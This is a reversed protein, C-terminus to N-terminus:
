KPTLYSQPMGIYWLHVGGGGGVQLSGESLSASTVAHKRFIHMIWSGCEWGEGEGFGCFVQLGHIYGAKRYYAIHIEEGGGGRGGNGAGKFVIILDLKVM